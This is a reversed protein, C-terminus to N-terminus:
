DEQRPMCGRVDRAQTMIPPHATRRITAGTVLLLGQEGYFLAPLSKLFEYWLM